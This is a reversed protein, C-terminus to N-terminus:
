KLNEREKEIMALTVVTQEETPSKWRGCKCKLLGAPKIGFVVVGPLFSDRGHILQLSVSGDKEEDYSRIKYHGRDKIYCTDGPYENAVKQVKKPLTKIWAKLKANV